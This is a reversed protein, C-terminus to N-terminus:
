SFQYTPYEPTQRQPRHQVSLPFPLWHHSNALEFSFPFTAFLAGHFAKATSYMYGTFIASFAACNGIKEPAASPTKHFNGDYM